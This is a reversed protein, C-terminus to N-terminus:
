ATTPDLTRPHDWEVLFTITMTASVTLDTTANPSSLFWRLRLDKTPQTVPSSTRGTYEDSDRTDVNYFKRISFPITMSFPNRNALSGIQRYRRYRDSTQMIHRTTTSTLDFGSSSDHIDVGVIAGHNTLGAIGEEALFSIRILGGLVRYRQYMQAM